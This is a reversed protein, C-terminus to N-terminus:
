TLWLVAATLWLHECIDCLPRLNSAAQVVHVTCRLHHSGEIHSRSIAPASTLVALAACGQVGKCWLRM